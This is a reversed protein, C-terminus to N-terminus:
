TWLFSLSNTLIWWVTNFESAVLFTEQHFQFYLITFLRSSNLRNNLDSVSEESVLLFQAENPFNLRNRSERCTGVGDRECLSACHSSNIHRLLTCPRGIAASFWTDVEKNYGQVQYRFLVIVILESRLLEFFLYLFFSFIFFLVQLHLFKLIWWVTQWFFIVCFLM